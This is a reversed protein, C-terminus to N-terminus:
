GGGGVRSKVFGRSAPDLHYQGLCPNSAAQKLEIGGEPHM